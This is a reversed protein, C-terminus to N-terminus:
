FIFDMSAMKVNLYVPNRLYEMFQFPGASDLECLHNPQQNVVLTLIYKAYTISLVTDLRLLHIPILRSVPIRLMSLTLATCCM